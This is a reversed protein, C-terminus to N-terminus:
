VRSKVYIMGLSSWFFFGVITGELIQLILDEILIAGVISLGLIVLKRKSESLRRLRRFGRFVISYILSYYIIFGGVGLEVLIKIVGSETVGYGTSKVGGVGIGTFWNQKIVSSYMEWKNVRAVNGSDGSWDIISYIRNATPNYSGYIDMWYYFVFIALFITMIVTISKIFMKYNTKEIFFDYMVKMILLGLCTGVLPGRSGAGLMGLINILLLILYWKKKTERFMFYSMIAYIGLLVGLSLPSDAFVRSRYVVEGMFVYGINKSGMILMNTSKEYIALLSILLGLFTTFRIFHYIKVKSIAYSSSFFGLTLFLYPYLHSFQDSPNSTCVLSLIVFIYYFLFLLVHLDKKKDLIFFALAGIIIILYFLLRAFNNSGSLGAWFTLTGSYIIMFYVCIMIFRYKRNKKLSLEDNILEHSDM